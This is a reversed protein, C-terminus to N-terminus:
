KSDTFTPSWSAGFTSPGWLRALKVVSHRANGIVTQPAVAL